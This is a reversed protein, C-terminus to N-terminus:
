APRVTFGPLITSLIGQAWDPGVRGAMAREALYSGYIAHSLGPCDLGRHLEGSAVGDELVGTLTCLREAVAKRFVEAFEPDEDAPLLAAIAKFWSLDEVIRRGADLVDALRQGLTLTSAPTKIVPVTEFAAALLDRRTGFRRYLTAKAVGSRKAVAAMTVAGPGDEALLELVTALAAREVFVSRPRGTM